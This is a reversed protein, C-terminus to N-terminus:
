WKDKSSIAGALKMRMENLRRSLSEERLREAELAEKAARLEECLEKTMNLYKDVLEEVSSLTTSLDLSDEPAEEGIFDEKCEPTALVDKYAEFFENGKVIDVYVLSKFEDNIKKRSDIIIINNEKLINLSRYLQQNSISLEYCMKNHTLEPVEMAKLYEFVRYVIRAFTKKM